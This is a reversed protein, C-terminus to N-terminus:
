QIYIIKGTTINGKEPHILDYWHVGTNSLQIELQGLDNLEIEREVLGTSSFIRLTSGNWYEDFRVKFQGDTTLNPFVEFAYNEIPEDQNTIIESKIVNDGPNDDLDSIIEAFIAKPMSNRPIDLSTSLETTSGVAISGTFNETSVLENDYYIKVTYENLDFHGTNEFSFHATTINGNSVEVEVSRATLNRYDKYPTSSSEVFYSYLRYYPETHGSNNYGTNLLNRYNQLEYDINIDNGPSQASSTNIIYPRVEQGPCWGARNFLWNGAQDSCPNAACDSKWLHHDHFDNGNVWLKHTVEYFEAANNTNGQGHGSITMRVHSTETNDKVNVSVADLDHSIGPDGYVLYGRQWLPAITSYTNVSQEDILDISMHVLWGEQTWVEINTAFKVEGGLISKFDTIDVVWGGCAIGYPTIYRALEFTGEDTIVRLDSLVDWPGCGGSPCTLDINLMIEEYRHLDNPLTMVVSNEQDGIKHLEGDHIIIKDEDGSKIQLVDSNNLGNQDDPHSAVVMIEPDTMGVMDVPIQFEYSYVENPQITASLTESNYLAGNLSLALDIDAIPSTGTNQIDVKLKVPHNIMNVIDVGYINQVSIDFDPLTYGEVWNSEDMFNFSAHSSIGTLDGTLTGAGENMPYYAVLGSEGGFLDVTMNDAIEAQSRADSWIRVEDLVGHFNRGGFGPSGGINIPM